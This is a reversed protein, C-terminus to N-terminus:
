GTSEKRTAKARRIDAQFDALLQDVSLFESPEEVGALHRHHGKPHHNDYLVAPRKTGTLILALRYRIGEPHKPSRPVQWLVLETLDGDEDIVRERLILVARMHPMYYGM